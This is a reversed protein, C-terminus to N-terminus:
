PAPTLPGLEAAPEDVLTVFHRHAKAAMGRARAELADFDFGPDEASEPFAARIMAERLGAPAKDAVFKGETTLRLFGQIRRWLSLAECLDEAVKGDLVGAQAAARLATAADSSLIEPHDSAHRLM